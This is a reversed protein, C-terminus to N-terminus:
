EKLDVTTPAIGPRVDVEVTVQARRAPVFIGVTHKGSVVPLRSAPCLRGTEEDDILVPYRNATACKVDLFANGLKPAGAPQLERRAYEGQTTDYVARLMLYGSKVVVVRHSGPGTVTDIPTKGRFVGDVWVDAQSPSTDLFLHNSVRSPAQDPDPLYGQGVSLGEPTVIPHGAALGGDKARAQTGTEIEPSVNAVATPSATEGVRAAAVRPAPASKPRGRFALFLWGSIAVILLPGALFLVRALRSPASFAAQPRAAASRQSMGPAAPPSAVMPRAGRGVSPTAKPSAGPRASALGLRELGAALQAQREDTSARSGALQEVVTALSDPRRAPDPATLARMALALQRPVGSEPFRRSRDEASDGPPRGAPQGGLLYFVLQGLSYADAARATNVSVARADRGVMEPAVFDWKERRCGATTRLAAALGFDLVVVAGQATVRVNGPCLGLHFLPPEHEHGKALTDAVDACLLGALAPEVRGSGGARGVLEALDLGPVFESAVFATELSDSVELVRASGPPQSALAQRGAALFRKAITTAAAGEVRDPFLVKLVAPVNTGQVCVRFTDVVGASGLLHEPLYRDIRSSV